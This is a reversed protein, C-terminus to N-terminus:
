LPSKISSACRVPVDWFVEILGPRGDIVAATIEFGQKEAQWRLEHYIDANETLSDKWVINKKLHPARIVAVGFTRKVFTMDAVIVVPQPKVPSKKVPYNDLQQRIWSESKRYEKALQRATQRKWVYKKWLVKQL